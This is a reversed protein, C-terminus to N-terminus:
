MHHTPLQKHQNGNSKEDNPDAAGVVVPNAYMNPEAPSHDDLPGKSGLEVVEDDTKIRVKTTFGKNSRTTKFRSSSTTSEGSTAISYKGKAGFFSKIKEKVKENRLVHLVFIFVGQFSNLITFIWAFAVSEENVALIGFVWTVGLLPLLVVTAKLIARVSVM